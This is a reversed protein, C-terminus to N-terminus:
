AEENVVEVVVHGVKVRKEVYHHVAVMEQLPYVRDIVAQIAGAEILQKLYALEEPTEQAMTVIMKKAARKPKFWAARLDGSSPNALLLRGGKALAEYSKVRDARGITDFIVDYQQGNATFDEKTYDICHTAGLEKILAFDKSQCVATVEAGFYRALQVAYTGIGGSAAHIVVKEGEQVAAKRLFHLANLGGVPVTAAAAFSMNQPKKLITASARLCCYEAYAGMQTKTAAFVEDGVKFNQVQSGVEEVVGALEQGMIIKRPRFVGLYLRAFLWFFGPIDFRRMECDGSSVNTAKVRILLENAKPRPTPVEEYQLVEPPGYRRYTIAKM